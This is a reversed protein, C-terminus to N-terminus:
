DNRSKWWASKSPARGHDSITINEKLKGQMGKKWSFMSWTVPGASGRIKEDKTVQWASERKHPRQM